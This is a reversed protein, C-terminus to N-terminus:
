YKKLVPSGSVGTRVDIIDRLLIRKVRSEVGSL